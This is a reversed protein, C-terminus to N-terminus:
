LALRALAGAAVDSRLHGYHREIMAVSTGSIQAVTLLDLGDHVLDSIVSHRLTYATTGDPLLATEVTTKIPGKWSDKNWAKGDARSILPAAPLKDKSATDFFEATVDPLKIRRDKGSKDHGIKLVKLRRDFDGATLKALAGPRLPLQCLGRLFAALDAPATEIFKLRQARDLYLERRQDADKIPRLKSRWAFDTTVQGDLYALNLAARFCTMDRNLTSTSRLGGRNGGSRTPLERLSKRWAELQGPTLKPLETSALKSSNLVYNKFRAETDSAARESKTARLHIVYTTCADAVTVARAAGGQGLHDFWAQAAKQAADFRLHDPLDSLEGLAQYIKKGSSEQMTRAIWTGHGNGGM